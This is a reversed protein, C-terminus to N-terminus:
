PATLEYRVTEHIVDGTDRAQLSVSSLRYLSDGLSHLNGSFFLSAAEGADQTATPRDLLGFLKKYHPFESAHNYGAAYTAGPLLSVTTRSQQPLRGIVVTDGSVSVALPDLSGTQIVSAAQKLAADLAARDAHGCRLVVASSPVVFVQDNLIATQQVHLLARPEMATLADVVPDISPAAGREFPPQDIRTELDATSGPSDAETSVDPASTGTNEIHVPEGFVVQQVASAITEKDPAAWARYLSNSAPIAALLKEIGSDNSPPAEPVLRLLAREEHFGNNTEFLDAVGSRFPKLDTENRQIWYTRFQPTKLLRDLQYLLRLDGQGASQKVADTYWPETALSAATEGSLLVLTQAMLDPDTSVIFWDKYSGFAITRHTGPDTKTFFSIGAIQRPQYNKRASWLQNTDLRGSSVHTLYVFSLSPLNYLAFASADGAATDVLNMEVPIGAVTAFEDRAQMLRQVLRSRSVEGFNDSAAWRRKEESSNWQALLKHFDKAELYLLAGPPLLSPLPRTDSLQARLWFAGGVFLLLAALPALFRRIM